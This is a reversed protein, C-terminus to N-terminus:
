NIAPWWALPEEVLGHRVAYFLLDTRNVLNLKHYISSLHNHVTHESIGMQAGIIMYKAGPNDLIVRILERERDTLRSVGEPTCLSGAMPRPRSSAHERGPWQGEDRAQHVQAVANVISETPEEAIM